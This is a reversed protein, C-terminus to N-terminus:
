EGRASLALPTSSRCPCAALETGNCCLTKGRRCGCVAGDGACCRGQAVVPADASSAARVCDPDPANSLALSWVTEAGALAVLALFLLVVKVASTRTM